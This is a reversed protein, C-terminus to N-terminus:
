NEGKFLEVVEKAVVEYDKSAKSRLYRHSVPIRRNRARKITTEDFRIQNKFSVSGLTEYLESLNKQLYKKKTVKTYLIRFFAASDISQLENITTLMGKISDEEVECPIIVLDHAILLEAILNNFYPSSDILIYDYECKLKELQEKIVNDKIEESALYDSGALIDLNDFRTKYVCKKIDENKLVSLVTKKFKRTSLGDTTNCQPDFDALLVRNGLKALDYGLNKTTTTKGCGGKRNVIVIVKGKKM